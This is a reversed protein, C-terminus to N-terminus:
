SRASRRIRRRVRWGAGAVVLGWALITTPEPTPTSGGPGAPTGITIPPPPPDLNQAEPPSVLTDPVASKGVIITTGTGAYASIYFGNTLANLGPITSFNKITFEFSPHAQSPDYALAGLNNTLTTGYAQAIGSGLMSTNVTAVNFGDLSGAPSNSKNAPVGAVVVPDASTGAATVPTFAISISKDGGLHPPNSGGAATTLPNTGGNPSGDTDGAIGYFNVAVALTDTKANYSLRIDEIAYGNVLGANTMWQPQYVANFPQGPVVTVSSSTSPLDVAANGTVFLPDVATGTPAVTPTIADAAAPWAWGLALLAMPWRFVSHRVM